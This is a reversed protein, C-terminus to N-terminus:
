AAARTAECYSRALSFHDNLIGDGFPVSGRSPWADLQDCLQIFVISLRMSYM